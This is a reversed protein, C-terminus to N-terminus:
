RMDQTQDAWKDKLQLFQKHMVADLEKLSMVKNDLLCHALTIPDWMASVGRRGEFKRADKLWVPPRSLREDWYKQNTTHDPHLPFFAMVQNRNIWDKSDSSEQQENSRREEPSSVSEGPRSTLNSTEKALAALEQPIKWGVRSSSAWATFEALSVKSSRVERHNIVTQPFIAQEKLNAVVMRIRKEFASEARHNLFTGQKFFGGFGLLESNIDRRLDHPELNMSLAVAQWLEVKPMLGWESWDPTKM